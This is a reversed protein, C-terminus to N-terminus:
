ARSWFTGLGIVASTLTCGAAVIARIGHSIPLPILKFIDAVMEFLKEIMTLFRYKILTWSRAKEESIATLKNGECIEGDESCRIRDCREECDAREASISLASGLVSAAHNAAMIYGVSAGLGEKAQSSLFPKALLKNVLLTPRIAGFTTVYTAGGIVNCAEAAARRRHSVCLDKVKSCTEEEKGAARLHALCSRASQITAPVSGNFVNGLAMVTRADGLAKSVKAATVHADTGAGGTQELISATLEATSKAVKASKDIGKTSNVIRALKNGPRTFFAHVGSGIGSGLRGCVSAM